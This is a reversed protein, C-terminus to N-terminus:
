SHPTQGSWSAPPPAGEHKHGPWRGVCGRAPQIKRSQQVHEACRLRVCETNTSEIMGRCVLRCSVEMTTVQSVDWANVDENFGFAPGGWASYSYSQYEKINLAFLEDMDTVARVDWVSIHGYTARADVVDALWEYVAGQLSSTDRFAVGPQFPPLPLSPPSPPAPPSPPIAPPSLPTNCWASAWDGPLTGSNPFANGWVSPAQAEFSAHILLQNCGSLACGWTEYGTFMDQAAGACVCPEQWEGRWSYSCFCGVLVRAAACRWTPSRALTGHLWPSTLLTQTTSCIRRRALVCAPEHWGGRCSHACSCGVLVRAAACRWTPSRALTGHLWPSTSLTQTTSCISRRALVRARHTAAAHVSVWFGSAPLLAGVHQHGQWRGVSGLAPQFGECEPVDVAGRWCM